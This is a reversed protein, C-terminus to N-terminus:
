RKGHEQNKTKIAWCFYKYFNPKEDCIKYFGPLDGSKYNRLLVGVTRPTYEKYGGQKRAANIRELFQKIDAQRSNRIKENGSRRSRLLEEYNSLDM